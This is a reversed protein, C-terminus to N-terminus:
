GNYIYNFSCINVNILYFTLHSTVEIILQCKARLSILSSFELTVFSSTAADGVSLYVLGIFVLTEVRKSIKSKTIVKKFIAFKSHLPKTNPLKLQCIILYAHITSVFSM